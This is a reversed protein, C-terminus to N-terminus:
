QVDIVGFKNIFITKTQNNSINKIILKNKTADFDKVAGTIKEFVIESQPLNIQALVISPPLDIASNNNPNNAIFTSGEFLTYKQNQFYVGFNTSNQNDVTIGSLTRIQADKLTSVLEQTTAALEDRKLIAYFSITTLAFLFSLIAVVLITEFLTFGAQTKTSKNDKV